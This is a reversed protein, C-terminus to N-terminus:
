IAFPYDEKTIKKNSPLYVELILLRVYTSNRVIKKSIKKVLTALLKARQCSIFDVYFMEM